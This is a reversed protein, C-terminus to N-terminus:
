ALLVFMCSCSAFMHVHGGQVHDHVHRFLIGHLSMDDKTACAGHLHDPCQTCAGPIFPCQAATRLKSAESTICLCHLSLQLRSSCNLSQMGCLLMPACIRQAVHQLHCALQQTIGVFSTALLSCCLMSNNRKCPRQSPASKEAAFVKDLEQFNRLDAQVSVCLSVLIQMCSSFGVSPSTPLVQQLVNCVGISCEKYVTRSHCDTGLLRM